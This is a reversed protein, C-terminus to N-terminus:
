LDGKCDNPPPPPCIKLAYSVELDNDEEVKEGVIVYNDDNLLDEQDEDTSVFILGQYKKPGAKQASFSQVQEYQQATGAMRESSSKIDEKSLNRDASSLSERDPRKKDEQDWEFGAFYIRFGNQSNNRKALEELLDKSIWVCKSLFPSNGKYNKVLEKLDSVSIESEKMSSTIPLKKPM